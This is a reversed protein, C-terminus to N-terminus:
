PYIGERFDRAEIFEWGAQIAELRDSVLTGTPRENGVFVYHEAPFCRKVEALYTHKCRADISLFQIFESWNQVVNTVALWNGCLGVYHKGIKNLNYLQLMKVPGGPIELTEDVDFMYINM